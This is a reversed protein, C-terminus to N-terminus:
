KYILGERIAVKAGKSRADAQGTVILRLKHPGPKLGYAQWLVNDHTRPVIYADLPLAQKKGDLYVEARGGEQNLVGVVAM